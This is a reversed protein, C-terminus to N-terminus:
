NASGKKPHKHRDDASHDIWCLDGERKRWVYGAAMCLADGALASILLACEFIVLRECCSLRKQLAGNQADPKGGRYALAHGGSEAIPTGEIAVYRDFECHDVTQFLSAILRTASPPM